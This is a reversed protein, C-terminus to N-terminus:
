NIEYLRGSGKPNYNGEVEVGDSYGDGDTDSLLPNTKYVRVEERDFLGDNDSDQNNIDTGIDREELDTLGDNDTDKTTPQNPQVPAQTPQNPQVPAQESPNTNPEITDTIGGIVYRYAFYGGITLVFFGVMILLPLRKGMSSKPLPAETAAPAPAIGPTDTKPQFVSPKEVQPPLNAPEPTDSFIDDLDKKPEPSPKPKPTLEPVVPQADGPVPPPKIRSEEKNIDSMPNPTPSPNMEGQKSKDDDFM